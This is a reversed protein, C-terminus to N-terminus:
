FRSLTQVWWCLLWSFTPCGRCHVFKTSKTICQHDKSDTSPSHSFSLSPCMFRPCSLADPLYTRTPMHFSVPKLRPVLAHIYIGGRYHGMTLRHLHSAFNGLRLLSTHCPKHDHSARSLHAPLFLLLHTLSSSQAKHPATAHSHVVPVETTWRWGVNVLLFLGNELGDTVLLYRRRQFPPFRVPALSSAHHQFSQLRWPKCYAAVPM